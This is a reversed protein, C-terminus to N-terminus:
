KKISDIRNWQRAVKPAKERPLTIAQGEVARRDRGSSMESESESSFQVTLIKM